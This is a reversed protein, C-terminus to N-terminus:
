EERDDQLLPEYDRGGYYVGIIAVQTGDFGFAIVVRGRYNTVRLGPRIDDRRVAREPLERFSECHAVIADTFRKAIAPSAAQEIHRYIGILDASAEPSFIVPYTM